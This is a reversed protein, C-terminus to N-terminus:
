PTHRLYEIIARADAETLTGRFHPMLPREEALMHEVAARLQTPDRRAFYDRDFAVPPRRGPPVFERQPRGDEGHCGACYRGYMEFGSSLVRVYTVLARADADSRLAPIPPMGKRGHRVAEVLEQDTVHQQFDSASLDRPRPGGQAPGPAPRGFPGHCLECRDVYIDAGREILPWNRDPITELYAALVDVDQRRAKWAKADFVLNLPKGDLVRRVLEDTDYRELFGERLNRPPPLFLAADPGDGEGDPGHCDACGALYLVRGRESAPESALLPGPLLAVLLFGLAIRAMRLMLCVMPWM